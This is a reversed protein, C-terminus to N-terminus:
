EGADSTWDMSEFWYDRTSPLWKDTQRATVWANLFNLLGQEGKRVAVAESQALLPEAVPVDIKDSHKLALYQAHPMGALYAHARGDLVEKEALAATSYTKVNARDFLAKAVSVAHTEAVTAIVIRTDNLESFTAMDQTMATNTALGIGSEATPRSFEVRLARAPTIAMGAAIIDIDGQQLAPIIEDWEYIKFEPKVGMDKAMKKALDVEFGILEGSSTKMTWPAFEAVGVRITGRELIGDLADAFAPAAFFLIILPFFRRLTRLGIMNPNETLLV